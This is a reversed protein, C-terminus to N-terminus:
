HRALTSAVAAAAWEAFALSAQLTQGDTPEAARRAADPDDRVLSRRLRYADDVLKGWNAPFHTEAYDRAALKSGVVGTASTQIARAFLLVASSQGGQTILWGPDCRLGEVVSLLMEAIEAKLLEPEVPDVLTEIRPGVLVIGASRVLWRVVQSNDHESRVLKRSGNALFWFPYGFPRTRWAEPDRWDKSRAEGPPDGQPGALARLHKVPTYSGELHQSWRSSHNHLMAHLSNIPGVETAPIDEQIVVLFDIDSGNDYDGQALSGHLYIGILNSGLLKTVGEVFIRLLTNLASDATWGQLNRNPGACATM